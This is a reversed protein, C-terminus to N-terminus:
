LVTAALKAASPPPMELLPVSSAMLTVIASSPATVAPPPPPRLEMPCVVSKLVITAPFLSSLAVTGGGASSMAPCPIRGFLSNLRIPVPPPPPSVFPTSPLWTPTALGARPGSVQFPPAVSVSRAIARCGPLRIRSRIDRRNIRRRVLRERGILAPRAKCPHVVALDIDAGVLQLGAHHGGDRDIPSRAPM